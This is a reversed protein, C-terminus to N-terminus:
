NISMHECINMKLTFSSIVKQSGVPFDLIDPKHSCYILSFWVDIGFPYLKLSLSLSLQETMDSEKCSWPSCLGHMSNELGYYQLPYGKGEGPSRGLGPISSLDGVNCASEKGAFSGPFGKSCSSEDSLDLTPSGWDRHLRLAAMSPTHTYSLWTSFGTDLRLPQIFVSISLPWPTVFSSQDGAEAAFPRPLWVM